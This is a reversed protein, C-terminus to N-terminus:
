ATPAMPVVGQGVDRSKLTIKIDKYPLLWWTGFAKGKISAKNQPGVPNVTEGHCAM